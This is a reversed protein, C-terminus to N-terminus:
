ALIEYSLHESIYVVITDIFQKSEVHVLHITVTVYEAEAQLETVHNTRRQQHTWLKAVQQQLAELEDVKSMKEVPPLDKLSTRLSDLSIESAHLRETIDELEVDDM